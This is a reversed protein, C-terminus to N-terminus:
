WEGLRCLLHHLIQLIRQPARPWNRSHFLGSFNKPQPCYTTKHFRCSCVFSFLLFDRPFNFSSSKGGRRLPLSSFFTSLTAFAFHLQLNFGCFSSFSFFCSPFKNSGVCWSSAAPFTKLSFFCLFIKTKKKKKGNAWSHSRRFSFILVKKEFTLSLQSLFRLNFIGFVSMKIVKKPEFFLFHSSSFTTKPPSSVAPIAHVFFVVPQQASSFFFLKPSFVKVRKVGIVTWILPLFKSECDLRKSRLNDLRKSSTVAIEFAFKAHKKTMKRNRLRIHLQITIIHLNLWRVKKGGCFNWKLHFQMLIMM